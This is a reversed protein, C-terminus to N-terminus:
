KFETSEQWPIVHVNAADPVENLQGALLQAQEQHGADALPHDFSESRPIAQYLVRPRGPVTREESRRTILGASALLDLHIRATNRRLGVAEAAETADLPRQHRRLSALLARRSENALARRIAGDEGETTDAAM